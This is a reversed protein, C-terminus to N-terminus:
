AAWYKLSVTATTSRCVASLRERRRSRGPVRAAASRVAARRVARGRRSSRSGASASSRWNGGRRGRPRSQVPVQHVVALAIRLVGLAQQKAWSVGGAMHSPTRMDASSATRDPMSCMRNASRGSSSAAAMSAYRLDSRGTGLGCRTSPRSSGPPRLPPLHQEVALPRSRLTGDRAARCRGSPRVVDARAPRVIGGVAEVRGRQDFDPAGGGVQVVAAVRRDLFQEDVALVTQVIAM